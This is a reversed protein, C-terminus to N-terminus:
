TKTKICLLAPFGIECLYSTPFPLLYKVAKDSLAPYESSVGLWFSTLTNQEFKTKLFSDSALELLQEEESASLKNPLTQVNIILPNRIWEYTGDPEPFYKHLDKQLSELHQKTTQLVDSDFENTLNIVLDHLSPFSDLERRSLCKHWLKLKAVMATVKDQVHFISILKGQLSLNLNNLHAFIDAIYALKCLQKWNHILDRLNFTEDLFVQLEERLELLRNLVKGHSLWRVETHFLHQTYDSGMEDWLQSFLRNNLPHGKVFSIIKVAEDLVQKLDAQMNQTALAERHICCHTSKAEPAVAQIRAVVGKKSGIMARVGDTSIGIRSWDLDNNKIFDDIVKFIAEGTTRTPIPQCFLIDDHVENNLEYLVYYCSKQVRSLLQQKINEAMDTIRCHITNNSLPVCDIAKSAKDGIMVQVMVKAAPKVLTEGIVEAAGSKTILYAVSFSAQLVKMNEGGTVNRITKQSKQVDKRRNEFFEVPKGKCEKHKSDFHCKLNFSKISENTLTEYCIVCLPVPEVEDGTWSFGLKLYEEVYKRAKKMKKAASINLLSVSPECPECIKDDCNDSTAMNSCKEAYNDSVNMNGEYNEKTCKLSGTKLWCDM